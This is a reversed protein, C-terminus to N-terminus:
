LATTVPSRANKSIRSVLRKQQQMNPTQRAMAAHGPWATDDPMLEALERQDDKSLAAWAMPGPFLTEAWAGNALVIEHAELAVHWYTLPANGPLQTVGPLGLLAKVAVFVESRGFMRQAIKNRLLIRHQPSVMLAYAPGGEGLAGAAIRIPAHRGPLPVFRGGVWRVERPGHDLTILADGPRLRAIPVHGRLTLLRTDRTFCVIAAGTISSDNYFGDYNTIPNPDLTISQINRGDLTGNNAFEALFTDGNQMQILTISLSLNSGDGLLVTANHVHTADIEQTQPGAGADYNAWESPLGSEDDPAIGDNNDDEFELTVFTMDTKGYTGAVINPNESTLNGEFTDMEAFNGIYILTSFVSPM